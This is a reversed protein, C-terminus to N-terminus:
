PAGEVAPEAPSEVAEVIEVLESKARTYAVYALNREQELQWGFGRPNALKEPELIFVRDAELGKSKHISSCTVSAPGDRFLDDIATVLSKTGRAGSRDAIIRICEAQDDIATCAEAAKDADKFRKATATRKGDAWAALKAPFEDFRRCRKGVKEVIKSLGSAIDRGKVCASVGEAILAFAMGLLPANRRCLVMDGERADAVFAKRTSTRVHGVPAGPRAEIEPCLTRALDVVSSPCRYCVSLPLEPAGTFDLVRDWADCDAGAFGNIAQRPDGVFVARGGAALSLEVLRLTARSLDQAEDVFVWSYRKPRLRLAIPLWVMDAFDITSTNAKGWGLLHRVSAVVVDQLEEAVDVDHHDALGLLLDRFEPAGEHVLDLRAFDLLKAVASRPYGEEHVVDAEDQSLSRGLLRGALVDQELGDIEAQYKEGAVRVGPFRYRIAAFGHAHLTSARMPTGVLRKGLETAIDKNFAVFLGDGVILKAAAIVSATKGAGAVARIARHGRGTTVWDFIACQYDSPAYALGLRAQYDHPSM